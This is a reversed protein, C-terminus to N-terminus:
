ELGNSFDSIVKPTSLMKSILINDKNSKVIKLPNKLLKYPPILHFCLYYKM